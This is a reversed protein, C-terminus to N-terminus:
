SFSFKRLIKANLLAKRIRVKKEVEERELKAEELEDAAKKLMNSHKKSVWKQFAKEAQERRKEATWTDVYVKEMEEAEEKEKM